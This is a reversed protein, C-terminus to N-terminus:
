SRWLRQLLAVCLGSQGALRLHHRVCDSSSVQNTESRTEGSNYGFLADGLGGFASTAWLLPAGKIPYRASVSKPKLKREVWSLQRTNSEVAANSRDKITVGSTSMRSVM